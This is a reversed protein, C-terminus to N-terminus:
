KIWPEILVDHEDKIKNKVFFNNMHMGYAYKQPTQVKFWKMYDEFEMIDNLHLESLIYRHKVKSYPGFYPQYYRDWMPIDPLQNTAIIVVRQRYPIGATFASGPQLELTLKVSNIDLAKTYLLVVPIEMRYQNEPMIYETELPLYDIGSQATTNEIDVNLKFTRACDAYGSLEVPLKVIMENGTSNMFSFLMSDLQQSTLAFHLGTEGHFNEEAGSDCSWLLSALLIGILYRYHRNM